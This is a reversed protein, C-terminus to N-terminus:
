PLKRHFFAVMKMPIIAPSFKTSYTILKNKLGPIIFLKNKQLGQYAIKAVKESSMMGMEGKAIRTGDMNAASLFNSETPGPCMISVTVGSGRLEYALAQSLSVVYAKSAYYAAMQPGPLFAAISAVQLIKGAKAKSFVQAYHHSLESLAVINLQLLSNLRENTMKTYEGLHGLGANNVVCDIVHGKEEIAEVLNMAGGVRSLDMAIVDVKISYQTRLNIALQNLLHEDRASIVLDHGHAAFEYALAHGIGKSAGTILTTM